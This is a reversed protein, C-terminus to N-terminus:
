NVFKSVLYPYGSTYEFITKACERVLMVCSHEDNYENLMGEIEEVTFSMDVPFDAAINWPSNYKSEEQPHLKLKLTKIDYVGALIVSHFTVDKRASM